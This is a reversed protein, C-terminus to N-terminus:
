PSRPRRSSASTAKPAAEFLDLAFQLPMRLMGICGARPAVARALSPSVARALSQTDKANDSSGPRNSV